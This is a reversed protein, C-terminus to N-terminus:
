RPHLWAPLFTYPDVELDEDFAIDNKKLEEQLAGQKWADFVETCGGILEGGIFIQPITKIDTRATLAARVQGGWGNDQYEVSDLDISRYAIQAAAFMKRVSWCFECWELAFMVVPQHPDFLTKELFDEAQSTVSMPAPAAKGDSSPPPADFRCGPTSRSLQIEEDTMEVPIDEFL